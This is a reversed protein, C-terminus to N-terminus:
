RVFEFEIWKIKGTEPSIEMKTCKFISTKHGQIYDKDRVSGNAEIETRTISNELVKIEVTHETDNDCEINNQQAKNIVTLVEAGYLVQKNYAEWEANWEALREAAQQEAQATGITNLNSFMLVLLSLVLIALLIGGAIILAQSANEM